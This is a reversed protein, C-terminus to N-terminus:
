RGGIAAIAAVPHPRSNVHVQKILALLICITFVIVLGPTRM